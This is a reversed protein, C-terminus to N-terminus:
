PKSRLGLAATVYSLEAHAPLAMSGLVAACAVADSSFRRGVQGDIFVMGCRGNCPSRSAVPGRLCWLSRESHRVIRQGDTPLKRHGSVSRPYKSCDNVYDIM